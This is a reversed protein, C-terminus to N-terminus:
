GAEVVMRADGYVATIDVATQVSQGKSQEHSIEIDRGMLRGIKIGNASLM